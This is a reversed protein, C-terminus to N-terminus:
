WVKLRILGKEKVLILERWGDGALIDITKQDSEKSILYMARIQREEVQDAKTTATKDKWKELLSGDTMGQLLENYRQRSLRTITEM